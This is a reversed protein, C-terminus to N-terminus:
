AEKRSEAMEEIIKILEEEPLDEALLVCWIDEEVWFCEKWGDPTTGILVDNGRVQAYHSESFEADRATVAGDELITQQFVLLSGEGNEYEGSYSNDSLEEHEMLYGSPIYSFKKLSGYGTGDISYEEEVYKENKKTEVIKMRFNIAAKVGASLATSIAFLLLIIMAIRRGASMYHFHRGPHRSQRKLKNMRKQFQIGPTFNLDPQEPMEDLLEQDAKPVYKYLLEDTVEIRM